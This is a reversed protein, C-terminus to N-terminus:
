KVNARIHQMYVRLGEFLLGQDEIAGPVSGLVQRANGGAVVLHDSYRGGDFDIAQSLFAGLLLSFGNNVCDLTDRGPRWSDSLVVQESPIASANAFLSQVMTDFGPIILGGTHQGGDIYDVTIATGASILIARQYARKHAALMLLWRDVGLTEVDTYVVSVGAFNKEVKAFVPAVGFSRALVRSLCDDFVAGAVSAIAISDVKASLLQCEKSFALELDANEKSLMVGSLLVEGAEGAGVQVLQWKLRTNGVDILLM